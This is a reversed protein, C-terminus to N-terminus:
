VIHGPGREESRRSASKDSDIYTECSGDEALIWSMDSVRQDRLLRSARVATKTGQPQNRRLKEKITHQHRDTHQRGGSPLASWFFGRRVADRKQSGAVIIQPVYIYIAAVWSTSRPLCHGIPSEFTVRSLASVPQFLLWKRRAAVNHNRCINGQSPSLTLSSSREWGTLEKSM